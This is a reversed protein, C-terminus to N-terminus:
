SAQSRARDLALRTQEQEKLLADERGRMYGALLPGCYGLSAPPASDAAQARAWGVRHLSDILGLVSQHGIGDRALRDGLARVAEDPAEGNLYRAFSETLERALLGLRRPSCNRDNDFFTAQLSQRLRRELDALDLPGPAVAHIDRAIM